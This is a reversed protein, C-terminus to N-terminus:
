KLSSFVFTLTLIIDRKKHLYARTRFSLPYSAREELHDDIYEEVTQGVISLIDIQHNKKMREVTNSLHECNLQRFEEMHVDPDFTVFEAM